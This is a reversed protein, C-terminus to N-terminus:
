TEKWLQHLLPDARLKGRAFMLERLVAERTVGNANAVDQANWEDLIMSLLFAASDEGLVQVVRDIVQRAFLAHDANSAIEAGAWAELPARHLGVLLSLDHSASVPASSKLVLNRVGYTAAAYLYREITNQETADPATSARKRDFRRIADLQVMLAEQRMDEVPAWWCRRKYFAVVQKANKYLIKELGEM